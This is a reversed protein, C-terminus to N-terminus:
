KKVWDSHGWKHNEKLQAWFKKATRDSMSEPMPEPRVQTSTPLSTSRSKQQATEVQTEKAPSTESRATDGPSERERAQPTTRKEAEESELSEEKSGVEQPRREEDEKPVSAERKKRSKRSATPTFNGWKERLKAISQAGVPVTQEEISMEKEEEQDKKSPTQARNPSSGEKTDVDVRGPTEPLPIALADQMKKENYTQSLGKWIRNDLYTMDNSSRRKKKQSM